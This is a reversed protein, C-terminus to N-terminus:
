HIERIMQIYFFVVCLKNIDVDKWNFVNFLPKLEDKHTEIFKVVHWNTEIVTANM